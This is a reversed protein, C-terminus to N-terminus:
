DTLLLRSLSTALWEEAEAESWGRQDILAHHVVGGALMWLIDAAKAVTLDPRLAGRDHLNRALRTVGAHLEARTKEALAAIEPSAGAAEDIVRLLPATRASAMTIQHAFAALTVRPDPDAEATKVQPREAMPIPDDDGAVAIDWLASLIAPKTGVAAYVTPFSVGAAEAIDRVSTAAYGRETILRRAAALIAARTREAQQARFRNDYRRVRNVSM